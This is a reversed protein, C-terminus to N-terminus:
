RPGRRARKRLYQGAIMLGLGAYSLDIAEIGTRPLTRGEIRTIKPLPLVRPGKGPPTVPPTVPPPSPPPGLQHPKNGCWGNNDDERDDDNGCGNNGDRDASFGGTQGPKDLGGNGNFDPDSPSHGQPFSNPSPSHGNSKWQGPAGPRNMGRSANQPAHSHGNNPSHATGSTTASKRAQGPSNQGKGARSAALAATSPLMLILVVVLTGFVIRKGL